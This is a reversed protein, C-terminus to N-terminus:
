LPFRNGADDSPDGLYTVYGIKSVCIHDNETKYLIEKNNLYNKTDAKKACGNLSM